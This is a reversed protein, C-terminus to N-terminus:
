LIHRKRKAPRYFYERGATDFMSNEYHAPASVALTLAKCTRNLLSGSIVTAHHFCEQTEEAAGTEEKYFMFSDWNEEEKM